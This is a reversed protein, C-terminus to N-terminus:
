RERVDRLRTPSTSSEASGCQLPDGLKVARNAGLLNSGQRVDTHRQVGMSYIYKHREELSRLCGASGTENVVEEGAVAWSEKVVNDGIQGARVYVYM